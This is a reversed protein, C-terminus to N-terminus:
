LKSSIEKQPIYEYHIFETQNYCQIEIFGIDEIFVEDDDNSHKFTHKTTFVYNYQSNTSTAYLFGSSWDESGGVETKVKVGCKKYQQFVTDM